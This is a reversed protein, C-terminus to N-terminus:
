DDFLVKEEQAKKFIKDEIDTINMVHKVKHGNFKLVRKLVDEFVFTRWNGIHVFDYVTPGCTYLGVEKAIPKFEEVNRSFFNYLKLPM